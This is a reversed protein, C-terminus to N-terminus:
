ANLLAGLKLSVELAVAELDTETSNVELVLARWAPDSPTDEATDQIRAQLTVKYTAM